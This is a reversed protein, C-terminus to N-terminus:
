DGGLRQLAKKAAETGYGLQAIQKCYDKLEAKKKADDGAWQVMERAISHVTAEDNTKQIMRRMLRQLEPDRGPKAPEKPRAGAGTDARLEDLTPPQKGVLKAMAALVKPADTENPQVIAFNAVVKNDKAVLITLSVKRNLGYSGPGELGDLSISIPSHFALAGKARTLFEETKTRDATLWIFHTAFGDKVLKGGYVDLPLLLQRGPRTLEHVFVLLLPGGKGDALLQTEKGAHPGSHGLVKFPTLKESPQPGSFVPDDAFSILALLVPLLSSM